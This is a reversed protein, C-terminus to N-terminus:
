YGYLDYPNDSPQQQGPPQSEGINYQDYADMEGEAPMNVDSVGQVDEDDDYDDMEDEMMRELEAPPTELPMGTRPQPELLYEARTQVVETSAAAGKAYASVPDSTYLARDGKVPVLAFYYVRGPVLYRVTFSTIKGINLAGYQYKGAAEGYVLHYNDVDERHWWTLTVSGVQPGPMASLYQSTAPMMAKVEGKPAGVREVSVAGGMAWASVEDSFPSATCDRAASLVLYYKIGPTLSKVTYSRSSSDGINDAGYLYDVSKTGYAVAYRNAYPVEDWYLTVEGAMPGSKAWVKAPKPPYPGGCENASVSHPKFASLSILTLVFAIVLLIPNSKRM